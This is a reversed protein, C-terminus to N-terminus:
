ARTARPPARPMWLGRRRGSTRCPSPHAALPYASQCTSAERLAPLLPLLLLLLVDATTAPDSLPVGQRRVQTPQPMGGPGGVLGGGPRPAAGSQQGPLVLSRRQGADQQSQGPIILRDDGRHCAPCAAPASPLSHKPIRDVFEGAHYTSLAM